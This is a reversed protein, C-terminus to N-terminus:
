DLGSVDSGPAPTGSPVFGYLYLVSSVRAEMSPGSRAAVRNRGPATRGSTVGRHEPDRAVPRAVGVPSRGTELTQTHPGGRSGRPSEADWSAARDGAVSAGRAPPRYGSRM